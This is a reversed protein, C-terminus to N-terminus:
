PVKTKLAAIDGGHEALKEDHGNLRDAHSDIDRRDHERHTKQQLLESKTESVDLRIATLNEDTADFFRQALWILVGGVIAVTASVLGSGLALAVTILIGAIGLWTDASFESM